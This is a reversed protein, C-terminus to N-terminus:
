SPPLEPLEESKEPSAPPASTELPPPPEAPSQTDPAPVKVPDPILPLPLLPAPNPGPTPSLLPEPTLTPLIEPLEDNSTSASPLPESVSPRPSANKKWKELQIIEPDLIKVPDPSLNLKDLDGFEDTPNFKFSFGINKKYDLLDTLLVAPSNETIPSRSQVILTTSITESVQTVILDADLIFNSKTLLKSNSPDYHQYVRFIMGPRVGDVSGRDVFVTKHQALMYTSYTHDIIVTGELAQLGAQPLLIPIKPPMPIVLSGRPVFDRAYIITGVYFSDRLGLIKVKGLIHYSYGMRDSHITKLIVPNETIAYVEGSQLNEDSRIYVTDNMGLYHGESRSGEIYGLPDVKKSAPIIEPDWGAPPHSILKSRRDFGLPDIEPPLQAKFSEWSQPPLLQWEPSRSRGSDVDSMRTQRQSRSLLILDSKTQRSSLHPTRSILLEVQQFLSNRNQSRDFAKKIVEDSILHLRKISSEAQAVKLGLSSDFLGFIILALIKSRLLPSSSLSNMM